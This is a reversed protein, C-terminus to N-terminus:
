PRKQTYSNVSVILELCAVSTSWNNTWYTLEDVKRLKFTLDIWKNPSTYKVYM